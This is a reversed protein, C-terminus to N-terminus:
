LSQGPRVQQSQERGTSAISAATLPMISFSPANVLISSNTSGKSSSTNNTKRVPAEVAFPCTTPSCPVLKGNSRDLVNTSGPLPAAGIKGAIKAKAMYKFGVDWTITGWCKGASFNQNSTTCTSSHTPSTYQLLQRYLQVAEQMALNDMLPEMSGPALYMGQTLGHTQIMSAAIASLLPGEMCSGRLDLCLGWEGVGDGDMDTGNVAQLVSLLQQWTDLGTNHVMTSQVDARYFLMLYTRPHVTGFARPPSYNPDPPLGMIAPFSIGYLAPLTVAGETYIYPTHVRWVLLYRGETRSENNLVQALVTDSNFPDTGSWTYNYGYNSPM